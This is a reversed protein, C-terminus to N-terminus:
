RWLTGKQGWANRAGLMRLRVMQCTSGSHACCSCCCIIAHPENTLFLFSACRLTYKQSLPWLERGDGAATAFSCPELIADAGKGQCSFFCPDGVIVCLRGACLCSGDAVTLCMEEPATMGSVLMFSPNEAAARANTAHACLLVLSCVRWANMHNSHRKAAFVFLTSNSALLKISVCALLSQQGCCLLM